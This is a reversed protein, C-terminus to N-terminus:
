VNQCRHRCLGFLGVLQNNERLLEDGWFERESLEPLPLIRLVYRRCTRGSGFVQHHIVQDRRDYKGDECEYCKVLAMGENQGAGTLGM